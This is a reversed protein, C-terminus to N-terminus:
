VYPADSRSVKVDKWGVSALFTAVNDETDPNKPGLVLEKIPANRGGDTMDLVVYPVQIGNRVRYNIQQPGARRMGDGDIGGLPIM